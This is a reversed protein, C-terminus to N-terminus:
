RATTIRYHLHAPPQTPQDEHSLTLRHETTEALGQIGYAIIDWSGKLSESSEITYRQDPVSTWRLVVADPERRVSVVVFGEESRSPDTVVRFERANSTGDGDTDDNADDRRADLGHATEWLDPMRDGDRDERDIWGQVPAGAGDNYLAGIEKPTLARRWIALDDITGNWAGRPITEGPNTASNGGIHMPGTGPTNNLGVRMTLGGLRAVDAREGNVFVLNRSSKHDYIAVVHHIGGDLIDAVM